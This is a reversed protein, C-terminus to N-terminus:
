ISKDNNVSDGYGEFNVVKRKDMNIERCVLTAAWKSLKLHNSILKLASSYEFEKCSYIDMRIHSPQDKEEFYHGSIHSTTIPQIFSWGPYMPDVADYIELPGLKEMSLAKLLDDILANTIEHRKSFDLPTKLEADLIFHQHTLGNSHQPSDSMCPVVTHFYKKTQYLDKSMNYM